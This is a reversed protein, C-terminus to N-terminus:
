KNDGNYSNFSGGIFIKGDNQVLTAYVYSSPGDGNGFGPDASNFTLDNDGWQAFAPIVFVTIFALLLFHKMM